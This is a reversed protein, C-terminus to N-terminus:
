LARDTAEAVKLVGAEITLCREHADHAVIAHLTESVMTTLDSEDYIGDMLERAKCFAIFLSYREHHDRNVSIGTGHLCAALVVIM